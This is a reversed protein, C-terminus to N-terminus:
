TTAITVILAGAPSAALSPTGPSYVHFRGPRICYARIKARM